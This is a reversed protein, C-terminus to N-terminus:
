PRLSRNHDIRTMQYCALFCADVLALCRADDEIVHLDVHGPSRSHTGSDPDHSDDDGDVAAAAAAAFIM